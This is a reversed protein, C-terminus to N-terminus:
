LQLTLCPLRVNTLRVDPRSRASTPFTLLKPLRKNIQGTFFLFETFFFFFSFLNVVEYDLFREPGFMDSGGSGGSFGGGHIYVM